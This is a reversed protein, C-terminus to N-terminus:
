PSEGAEFLFSLRRDTENKKVSAELKAELGRAQFLSFLLRILGQPYDADLRPDVSQRSLDTEKQFLAIVAPSDSVFGNLNLMKHINHGSHTDRAFFFVKPNTMDAGQIQYDFHSCHETIHIRHLESYAVLVRICNSFYRVVLGPDVTKESLKKELYQALCKRCIYTEFRSGAQCSRIFNEKRERFLAQNLALHFDWARGAPEPISEESLYLAEPMFLVSPNAKVLIKTGGLREMPALLLRTHLNDYLPLLTGEIKRRGNNRLIGPIDPRSLPQYDYHALVKDIEPVPYNLAFLVSAVKDKGPRNIEDRILKTLYSHSIGSIKSITNLKLGSHDVIEKLHNSFKRM